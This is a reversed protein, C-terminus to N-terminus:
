PDVPTTAYRPIERDIEAGGEIITEKWVFDKIALERTVWPGGANWGSCLNVSLELGLRAAEKVAFRFNVRWEESMFLPGQAADPGGLGAAFLLAGSVGQARMTERDATIGAASAAGDLWWWYVWAKSSDPPSLFAQELAGLQAAAAEGNGAVLPACRLILGVAGASAMFTRRSIQPVGTPEKMPSVKGNCLLSSSKM